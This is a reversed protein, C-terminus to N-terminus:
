QVQHNEVLDQTGCEAPCRARGAALRHGLLLAQGDLLGETTAGGETRLWVAKWPRMCGKSPTEPLAPTEENPPCIEPCTPNAM